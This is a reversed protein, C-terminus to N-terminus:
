RAASVMAFGDEFTRSGDPARRRTLVVSGGDVLFEVITEASGRADDEANAPM